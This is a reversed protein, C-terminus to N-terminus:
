LGRHLDRSHLRAGAYRHGAGRQGLNDRGCLRPAPDLPAAEIMKGDAGCLGVAKQGINELKSVLGKNIKGSLVMQVVEATEEDTVRLGNVFESKKGLRNLMDTIEPGGGHVLVVKVGVLALLAVDGMVANKLEENLM